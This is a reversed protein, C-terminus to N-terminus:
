QSDAGAKEAKEIIRHVVDSYPEKHHIKMSDLWKKDEEWIWIERKKNNAM